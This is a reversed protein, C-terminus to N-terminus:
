KSTVKAKEIHVNLDRILKDQETYKGTTLIADKKTLLHQLQPNNESTNTNGNLDPLHKVPQPILSSKFHHKM